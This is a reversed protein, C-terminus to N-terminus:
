EARISDDVECSSIRTGQTIISETFMGNNVFVIRVIPNTETGNIDLVFKRENVFFNLIYHTTIPCIQMDKGYNIEFFYRKGITMSELLINYSPTTIFDGDEYFTLANIIIGEIDNMNLLYTTVNEPIIIVSSLSTINEISNFIIHDGDFVFIKSFESLEDIGTSLQLIQRNSKILSIDIDRISRNSRQEFIDANRQIRGIDGNFKSIKTIIEDINKSIKKTKKIIDTTRTRRSKILDSIKTDYIPLPKENYTVTINQFESQRQKDNYKFRIKINTDVYELFDPNDNLFINSINQQFEFKEVNNDKLYEFGKKQVLLQANDIYKQPLNIGSIIFTDGEKPYRLSNPQIYTNGWTETDKYVRINTPTLETNPYRVNDTTDKRGVFVYVNEKKIYFDNKWHEWNEIFIKFKSGQCSGSTMHIYMDENEIASAFLDFDLKKLSLYFTEQMPDTTAPDIFDNWGYLIRFSQVSDKNAYGYGSSGGIIQGDTKHLFEVYDNDKIMLNKFDYNIESTPFMTSQYVGTLQVKIVTLEVNSFIKGKPFKTLDRNPSNPTWTIGQGFDYYFSKYYDGNLDYYRLYVKGWTTGNNKYITYIIAAVDPELLNVIDWSFWGYDYVEPDFSVHFYPVEAVFPNITYNNNWEEPERYPIGFSDANLRDIYEGDSNKADKITPFVDDFDVFDVFQSKKDYLNEWTATEAGVFSPNQALMYPIIFRSSFQMADVTLKLEYIQQLYGVWRCVRVVTGKAPFDNENPFPTPTFGIVKVIKFLSFENVNSIGSPFKTLDRNHSDPNWNQPTGFSKEYEKDVDAFVFVFDADGVHYNDFLFVMNRIDYEDWSFDLSNSKIYFYRNVPTNTPAPYGIRDDWENIVYNEVADAWFKPMIRSGFSIYSHPIVEGLPFEITGDKKFVPYRFPVNKTGGRPYLKTIINEKKSNRISSTLGLGQGFDFVKTSPMTRETPIDGIFIIKKRVGNEVPYNVYYKLGYIEEITQLVDSIKSKDFLIPEIPFTGHNNGQLRIEWTRDISNLSLQVRSILEEITCCLHFTTQGSRYEHENAGPNSPTNPLPFDLFEFQTLFYEPAFFECSYRNNGNLANNDRAYLFSESSPAYIITYIQKDVPYIVYCGLLMTSDLGKGDYVLQGSIKSDFNGYSKAWTYKKIIAGYLVSGDKKYVQLDAM